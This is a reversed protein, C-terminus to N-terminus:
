PPTPNSLSTLYVRATTIPERGGSTSNHLIMGSKHAEKAFCTEFRFVLTAVVILLFESELSFIAGLTFRQM